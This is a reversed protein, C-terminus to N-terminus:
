ERELLKGSVDVSVVYDGELVAGVDDDGEIIDLTSANDSTHLAPDQDALGSQAMLQELEEVRQQLARYSSIFDISSLSHLKLEPESKQM